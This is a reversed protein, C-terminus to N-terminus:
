KIGHPHVSHERGVYTKRILVGNGRHTIAPRHAAGVTWKPPGNGRQTIQFRDLIRGQLSSYLIVDFYNLVAGMGPLEVVLIQHIRRGRTIPGIFIRDLPIHQQVVHQAIPHELLRASHEIVVAIALFRDRHQEGYLRMEKPLRSLGRTQKRLTLLAM